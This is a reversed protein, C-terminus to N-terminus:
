YDQDEEDDDYDLDSDDDCECDDLSAGCTDCTEEDDFDDDEDDDDRTGYGGYGSPATAPAGAATHLRDPMYVDNKLLNRDYESVVTYACTRLKTNEASPVAVVDAPNVKVIIIHDDECNSFGKVYELSGVHFGSSCANRWNDDVTNRKVRHTTGITNSFKGSHKDTWDARVAKYGLFCGDETIPLGKHELFAYLEDVSHKSPNEMLNGLFKLMPEFPFGDRMLGLIRETITNHVAEGEYFVIGDKVQVKEGTFDRVAKPIDAFRALAAADDKVIADKINNYNPHDRPVTYAKGAAVANITGANTIIFSINRM